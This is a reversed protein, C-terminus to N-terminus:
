HCDDGTTSLESEVRFDTPLISEDIPWYIAPVGTQEPYYISIHACVSGSEATACAWDVVSIPEGSRLNLAQSSIIRRM